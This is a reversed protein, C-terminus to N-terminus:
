VISWSAVLVSATVRCDIAPPITTTATVTYPSLVSPGAQTALNLNTGGYMGCPQAAAPSAVLAALLSLAFCTFLSAALKTSLPM